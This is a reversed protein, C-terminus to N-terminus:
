HLEWAGNGMIGGWFGGFGNIFGYWGAKMLHKRQIWGSGFGFWRAPAM